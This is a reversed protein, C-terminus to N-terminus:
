CGSPTGAPGGRQRGGAACPPWPSRRPTGTAAGRSAGPMRSWAASGHAGREAGGKEPFAHTRAGRPGVPTHWRERGAAAFDGPVEETKTDASIVPEGAQTFECVNDGIYRFPADRDPHRHQPPRLPGRLDRAPPLKGGKYPPLAM